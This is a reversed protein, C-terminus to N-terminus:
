NYEFANASDEKSAEESNPPYEPEPNKEFTQNAGEKEEPNNNDNLPAQDAMEEDRDEGDAEQPVQQPYEDVRHGLPRVKFQPALEEEEERILNKRPEQPAADQAPQM